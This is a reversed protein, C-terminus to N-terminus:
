SIIKMKKSEKVDNTIRQMTREKRRMLTMNSCNVDKLNEKMANIKNKNKTVKQSLQSNEKSMDIQEEELTNKEVELEAAYNIM